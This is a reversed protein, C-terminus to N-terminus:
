IENSFDFKKHIIWIKILYFCWFINDSEFFVFWFQNVDEVLYKVTLNEILFLFYIIILRFIWFYKLIDKRWRNKRLEKKAAIGASELILQCHEVKIIKFNRSSTDSYNRIFKWCFNQKFSKIKEIKINLTNKAWFIKRKLKLFIVCLYKHKDFSKLLILNQSLILLTSLLKATILLKVHFLIRYCADSCNALIM